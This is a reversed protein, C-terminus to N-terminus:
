TGFKRLSGPRWVRARTERFSRARCSSCLFIWTRPSLIVPLSPPGGPKWAVQAVSLAKPQAELRRTMREERTWTWPGQMFPDGEQVPLGLHKEGHDKKGLTYQSEGLVCEGLSIEELDTGQRVRPEQIGLSHDGM